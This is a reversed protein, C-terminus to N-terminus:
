VPSYYSDVFIHTLDPPLGLQALGCCVSACTLALIPCLGPQTPGCFEGTCMVPSPGHKVLNSCGRALASVPPLGPQDLNYCMSAFASSQSLIIEYSAVVSAPM